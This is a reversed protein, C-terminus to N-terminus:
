DQGDQTRQTSLPSGYFSIRSETSDPGEEFRKATNPDALKRSTVSGIARAGSGFSLYVPRRSSGGWSVSCHQLADLGTGVAVPIIEWRHEGVLNAQAKCQHVTM